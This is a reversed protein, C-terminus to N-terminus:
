AKELLYIYVGDREDSSILKNGSQTAFVSFDRVSGQDTALVRLQEGAQM